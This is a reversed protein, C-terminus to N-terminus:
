GHDLIEPFPGTWPAQNLLFIYRLYTCWTVSLAALLNMGLVFSFALVNVISAFQNVLAAICDQM